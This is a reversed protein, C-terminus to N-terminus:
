TAGMVYKAKALIQREMKRAAGQGVERLMDAADTGEIETPWWVGCGILDAANTGKEIGPNTGRKALTGHDNDCCVLVNGTPRFRDVVPFLNGADFAVVVQAVRVSQYVALGTALGEAFVTLAARERKIVFAGAKVPAGPWFRKTGDPTITQVSIIWDGHMVPIVLLGDHQRLGSCGLPSLGKREIYPHIRNLPRAKQWFERASRMAQIRYARDRERVLRQREQEAPSPAQMTATHDQWHGLAQRPAVANDGWVGRRGDLHLIYWGNRKKPHTETACRVVRGNPEVARPRLGAARLQDAFNM